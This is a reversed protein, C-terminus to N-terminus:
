GGLTHGRRRRVAVYAVAAVIGLIIAIGIVSAASVGTGQAQTGSARDVAPAPEPTATQDATPGPASAPAAGPLAVTVPSDAAKAAASVEKVPGGCGTAPYDAIACTLGGEVRTTTVASLVESGSAATDVVACKAMAAPPTAGAEADAPRGADIVVGVRKQGNAATTAGCIEAFTPKARPMRTSNEDAVAFRWGEVAGDAPKLDAPGKQAFAWAGDTLAFYGWFRYAAASAQSAPLVFTVAAAALVVAVTVIRLFRGAV